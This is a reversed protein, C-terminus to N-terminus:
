SVVAVVEDIIHSEIHYKELIHKTQEEKARKQRIAELDHRLGKGIYFQMLAEATSMEKEQVIMKLDDLVDVPIKLTVTTTPRDKTLVMNKKMLIHSEPMNLLHEIEFGDDLEEWYVAFGGPDLTWKARQEPTADLLWRLWTVEELAIQFSTGDDLTISMDNGSFRVDKAGKSISLNDKFIPM